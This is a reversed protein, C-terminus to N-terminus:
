ICWFAARGVCPPLRSHRALSAAAVLAIMAVPAAASLRTAVLAAHARQAAGVVVVPAAQSLSSFSITMAVSATSLALQNLGAVHAAKLSPPRM